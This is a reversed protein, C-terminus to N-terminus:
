TIVCYFYPRIKANYFQLSSLWLQNPIVVSYCVSTLHVFELVGSSRLRLRYICLFVPSLFFDYRIGAWCFRPLVVQLIRMVLGIEM